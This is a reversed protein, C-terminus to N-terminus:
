SSSDAKSRRGVPVMLLQTCRLRCRSRAQRSAPHHGLVLQGLADQREGLGAYAAVITGTVLASVAVGVACLVITGAAQRPARRMLVPLLRLTAMM